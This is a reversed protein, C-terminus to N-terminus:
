RSISECISVTVTAPRNTSPPSTKSSSNAKWGSVGYALAIAADRACCVVNFIDRYKAMLLGLVAAVAAAVLMGALVMVLIDGVGHFKHLVAASYGGLCYYLGQGFSVLGTRMMLMMGLVGFLAMGLNM